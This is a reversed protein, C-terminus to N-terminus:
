GRTEIEQALPRIIQPVVYSDLLEQSVQRQHRYSEVFTKFPQKGWFQRITVFLTIPALPFEGTRVHYASTRTEFSLRAQLRCSDNLALMISPQYNIVRSGPMQMLSEFPTNRALAEAVLEDHNGTYFFDFSYLLDLTECNMNDLDFHFPAMELVREHLQDADELSEPNLHGSSLRRGELIISRNAGADRDEELVYEGNEHRDFDTMQPFSKQIAHFFHMVAERTTPLELKSNIYVFLGFDDCVSNYPNNV